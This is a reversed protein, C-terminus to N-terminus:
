PCVPTDFAPDVLDSGISGAGGFIQMSWPNFHFLSQETWGNQTTIFGNTTLDETLHHAPEGANQMPLVNPGSAATCNDLCLTFTCTSKQAYSGHKAKSAWLVPYPKGNRMATDCTNATCKGCTSVVQCLTGQHSIAVIAVIGAPAPLSRAVTIAFAEDDGIHPGAGCDNQYLHDYLIHLFAPNKPHPSVRYLMGGLPCGDHDDVNLYPLYDLAVQAEYADDLGDGDLDSGTLDAGSTTSDIITSADAIAADFSMAVDVVVSADEIMSLDEVVRADPSSVVSSDPPATVPSNACAALLVSLRALHRM